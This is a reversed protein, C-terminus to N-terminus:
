KPVVSRNSDCPQTLAYVLTTLSSISRATKPQVTKNSSKFAVHQHESEKM